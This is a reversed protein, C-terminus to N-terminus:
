ASNTGDADRGETGGLDVLAGHAAIVRASVASGRELAEHLTAGNLRAHLFGANFSDGAATTDVPAAIVPPAFRATRGGDLALMEGPGNKVVIVGAGQAAYRAATADIDSDGFHTAEDEHSPLVIDSRAAAAMVAGRMTAGDEWLRPRLNPDFAVLAGQERATEMAALLTERGARDLIALTIGSLYVIGAARLAADLHAPDAALMRAASQGRWYSFRREGAELEILYLGVSRDGRAVIGGTGIGAARMFATMQASLTDTGVASLYDISWDPGFLRRAYWATNFTDGSFAMRFQGPEGTSAMEVMCEGISVLRKQM